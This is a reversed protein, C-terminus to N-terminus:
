PPKDNGCWTPRLQKNTAKQKEIAYTLANSVSRHM